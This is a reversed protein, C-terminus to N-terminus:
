GNVWIEVRRNKDRGAKTTNSAVPMKEGFGKVLTPFIGRSQLNIEIQKARHESLQVNYSADGISDSFGFLSLKKGPYEALYHTLRDLDRLSKNDLLDSGSNFRFNLSLRTSNRVFQQYDAPADTPIAPNLTYINQSIFGNEKVIEQGQASQTFEIFDRMFNSQKAPTYFYLRRSLPYDETGVTFLTPIISQAGVDDAVALLKAHRVYPLGIFGIAGVDEAVLDSLETSSEYRSATESLTKNHKKLVLYKFTDWTGSNGDRAYISVPIDDGGVESWNTIEGSFLGALQETNLNNILNAKNVIIALGDLGIIHESIPHTLDGFRDKLLIIEKDKIKRSAMGMDATGSDMDAFSTTSGHAQIDIDIWGQTPLYAHIAKEVDGTATIQINQAGLSELYGKLLTPALKEGVTNSGHLRLIVNKTTSTPELSPLSTKVTANEKHAVDLASNALTSLKSSDNNTVLTQTNEQDQDEAISTAFSNSAAVAVPSTSTETTVLSYGIIILFSCLLVISARLFWDNNRTKTQPSQRTEAKNKPLMSVLPELDNEDLEYHIGLLIEQEIIKNALEALDSNEHDKISALINARYLPDNTLQEFSTHTHIKKELKYHLKWLLNRFKLMKSPSNEAM